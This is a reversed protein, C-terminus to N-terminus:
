EPQEKTTPPQWEPSRIRFLPQRIQGGFKENAQTQRQIQFDVRLGAM